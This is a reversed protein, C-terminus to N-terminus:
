ATPTPKRKGIAGFLQSLAFAAMQAVVLNGGSLAGAITGGVQAVADGNTPTSGAPKPTITVAAGEGVPITVPGPPPAPVSVSVGGGVDINTKPAPTDAHPAPVDPVDPVTTQHPANHADPAVPDTGAPANLWGALGACAGLTLMVLLAVSLALTTRKL